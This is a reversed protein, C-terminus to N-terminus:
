NYKKFIKAPCGVAVSDDPINHTVVSNAGIICNEGITVGPLISVNEGIWVNKKIHIGGKSVLPRENPPTLLMKKETTGHSHDSIFVKGAILVHDDIQIKNICALHCFMGLSVNNGIIIEPSHKKNNHEDWAEIISYKGMKFNDGISIYKLGKFTNPEHISVKDGCYKFKKKYYRKQGYYSIKFKIKNFIVAATKSFVFSLMWCVLSYIKRM